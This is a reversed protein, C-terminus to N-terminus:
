RRNKCGKCKKHNSGDVPLDVVQEGTATVLMIRVNGGHAAVRDAHDCARGCNVTEAELTQGDYVRFFDNHHMM